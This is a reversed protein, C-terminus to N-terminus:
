QRTLKKFSLLDYMISLARRLTPELIMSVRQEDDDQISFIQFFDVIDGFNKSCQEPTGELVVAMCLNDLKQIQAPSKLDHMGGTEFCMKLAYTLEKAHIANSSVSNLDDVFVTIRSNQPRSAEKLKCLSSNLMARFVSSGMSPDVIISIEKDNLPFNERRLCIKALTSKGSGKPGILLLNQGCNLLLRYFFSHVIIEQSIEIDFPLLVSDGSLREVQPTLTTWRRWKFLKIEFYYDFVSGDGPFAQVCELCKPCFGMSKELSTLSRSLINKKLIKDFLFRKKMDLGTGVTWIIALIYQSFLLIRQEDPVLRDYNDSGYDKLLCTFMKVTRTVNSKGAFAGINCRHEANSLIPELVENFLVSLLKEHGIIYKPLDSAIITEFIHSNDLHIGFNLLACRSILAPSADALNQSEFIVKVSSSLQVTSDCLSEFSGANQVLDLIPDCISANLDGHLLVWGYGISSHFPDKRSKTSKFLSSLRTAELDTNTLLAPLIGSSWRGEKWSGMLEDVPISNYYCEFLKMDTGESLRYRQIGKQLIKIATTKGVKRLGTIILFQQSSLIDFISDLRKVYSDVFALGMDETIIAKLWHNPLEKTETQGLDPFVSKIIDKVIATESVSVFPLVLKLIARGLASQETKANITQEHLRYSSALDLTRTLMIAGFCFRPLSLTSKLSSITISLKTALSKCESFDSAALVTEALLRVPPMRVALPRFLSRIKDPMQHWSKMDTTDLTAFIPQICRNQLNVKRGGIYIFDANAGKPQLLKRLSLVHDAILSGLEKSLLNPNNFCLWTETLVCGELLSLFGKQGLFLNTDMVFLRYGMLVALETVLDSKGSAPPGLLSSGHHFQINQVMYSLTRYMIPNLILREKNGYFEFGYKFSSYMTRITVNESGDMSYRFYYLYEPDSSTRHFELQQLLSQVQSIAFETARRMYAPKYADLSKILGDLQNVCGNKLQAAVSPHADPTLASLAKNWSLLCILHCVQSPWKLLAETYNFDGNEIIRTIVSIMSSKIRSALKPLWAELDLLIDLPTDLELKEGFHGEIEFLQINDTDKPIMGSLIRVQPDKTGGADTSMKRRRISQTLDVSAKSISQKPRMMLGVKLAKWRKKSQASENNPQLASGLRRAALFTMKTKATTDVVEAVQANLSKIGTFCKSIIKNIRNIDKKCSLLNLIDTESLFYLRPFTERKIQIVKSIMHKSSELRKLASRVSDHLDNRLVLVIYKRNKEFIETMTSLFKTVSNFIATDGDLLSSYTSFAPLLLGYLDQLELINTLLSQAKSLKAIWSDIKSIMVGANNLKLLNQSAIIADEIVALAQYGDDLYAVSNKIDLVFEKASLDSRMADLATEIHHENSAKISIDLLIDQVMELDLDMVQRLRLGSFDHLSLGIVKSILDWHRNRLAPNRLATIINTNRSFDDLHVKVEQLIKMSNVSSGFIQSLSNVTKSWDQAKKIVLEANLDIFLSSTWQNLNHRADKATTWLTEFHHFTKVLHRYPEFSFPLTVDILNCRREVEDALVSVRELRKKLFTVRVFMDDTREIDDINMTAIDNKYADYSTRIFESDIRIQESIQDYAAQLRSKCYNFHERIVNPWRYTAWYKEAVTNPIRLNLRYM